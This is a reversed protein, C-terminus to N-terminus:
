ERVQTVNYGDMEYYALHIHRDNSLDLDIVRRAANSFDVLPCELLDAPLVPVVAPHSHFIRFVIFSLLLTMPVTLFSLVFLIFPCQPVPLVFPSRSVTRPFPIEKLGTKREHAQNQRAVCCM